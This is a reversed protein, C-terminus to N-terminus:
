THQTGKKADAKDKDEKAKRRVERATARKLEKKRQVEEAYNSRASDLSLLDDSDLSNGDGEDSEDSTLDEEDIKDGRVEGWSDDEAWSDDDDTESGSEVDVRGLWVACAQRAEAKVLHKLSEVSNFLVAVHVGAPRISEDDAICDFFPTKKKCREIWAAFFLDMEAQGARCNIDMGNLIMARVEEHDNNIICLFWYYSRPKSLVHTTDSSVKSQLYKAHKMAPSNDIQAIKDFFSHFTARIAQEVEKPSLEAEPQALPPLVISQQRQNHQRQHLPSATSSSPPAPSVYGRAPTGDLLLEELRTLQGSALFHLDQLSCLGPCNGLDLSRLLRLESFGEGATDVSQISSCNLNLIELGSLWKLPDYSKLNTGALNVGRLNVCTSISSIDDIQTYSLNLFLLSQCLPLKQIGLNTVNACRALGLLRQHSGSYILIRLSVPLFPPTFFDLCLATIIHYITKM